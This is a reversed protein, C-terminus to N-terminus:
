SLDTLLPVVGHPWRFNESLLNKVKNQLASFFSLLPLLSLKQSAQKKLRLGPPLFIIFNCAPSLLSPKRPDPHSLQSVFFPHSQHRLYPWESLITTALASLESKGEPHLQTQHQAACSSVKWQARPPSDSHESALM